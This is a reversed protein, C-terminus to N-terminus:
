SEIPFLVPRVRQRSRELEAANHQLLPHGWIRNADLHCDEAMAWGIEEFSGLNAQRLGEPDTFAGLIFVRDALDAPIRARANELRDGRRDFDLLLVMLRQPHARMTAVQDSEFADLVQAWGGAEPLVQIRQEFLLPYKLFGNAVQRNADDEPLVVVHPRYKNVSM